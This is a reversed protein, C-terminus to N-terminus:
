QQQYNQLVRPSKLNMMSDVNMDLTSTGGLGDGGEQYADEENITGIEYHQQQSVNM